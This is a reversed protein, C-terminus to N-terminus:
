GCGIEVGQPFISGNFLKGVLSIIKRGKLLESILVIDVLVGQWCFGVIVICNVGVVGSCGSLDSFVNVGWAFVM